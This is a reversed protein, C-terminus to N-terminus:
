PPHKTLYSNKNTRFRASFASLKSRKQNQKTRSVGLSMGELLHNSGSTKPHFSGSVLRTELTRKKAADARSGDDAEIARHRNESRRLLPRIRLLRHRARPWNRFVAWVRGLSGLLMTADNADCNCSCAQTLLLDVDIAM